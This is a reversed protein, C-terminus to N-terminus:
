NRFGNKMLSPVPIQLDSMCLSVCQESARLFVGIELEKNQHRLYTAETLSSSSVATVAARKAWALNVVCCYTM